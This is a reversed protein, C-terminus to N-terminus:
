RTSARGAETFAVAADSAQSVSQSIDVIVLRHDTNASAEAGLYVRYSPVM